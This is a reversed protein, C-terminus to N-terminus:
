MMAKIRSELLANMENTLTERNVFLDWVMGSIPATERSNIQSAWKFRDQPSPHTDDETTTRASNENYMQELDQKIEENQETMEYLNQLARNSSFADNIERNAVHSFEIDRRIVHTLGERFADAGYQHVAM